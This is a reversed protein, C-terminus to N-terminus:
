GDIQFAYAFVIAQAIEFLEDFDSVKESPFFLYLDSEVSVSRSILRICYYKESLNGQKMTLEVFTSESITAFGEVVKEEIEPGKVGKVTELFTKQDAFVADKGEIRAGFAIETEGSFVHLVDDEERIEWEEPMMTELWEPIEMLKWGAYDENIVANDLEAKLGKQTNSVMWGMALWTVVPIVVLIILLVSVMILIAKLSEKKSSNM